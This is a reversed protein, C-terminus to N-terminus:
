KLTFKTVTITKVGDKESVAGEVTAEKGGKCIEKHLAKAQDNAETLYAVSKGDEKVVVAARCKDAIALDCKACTATGELKKDEAQAFAGAFAIFSFLALKKM